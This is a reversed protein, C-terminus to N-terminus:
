KVDAAKPTASDAPNADTMVTGDKHGSEKMSKTHVTHKKAKPDVAVPAAPQAEPAQNEMPTGDRHGAEKMAKTHTTHTDADEAAYAGAAGLVMAAISSVFLKNM